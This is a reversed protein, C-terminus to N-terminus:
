WVVPRLMGSCDDEYEGGHSGSIEVLEYTEQYIAAVGERTFLAIFLFVSPSFTGM